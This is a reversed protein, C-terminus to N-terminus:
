IRIHKRSYLFKNPFMITYDCSSPENGIDSIKKPYRERGSRVLSVEVYSDVLYHNYAMPISDAQENLLNPHMPHSQMAVNLQVHQVLAIIRNEM